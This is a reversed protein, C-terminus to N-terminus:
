FGFSFSDMEVEVWFAVCGTEVVVGWSVVNEKEVFACATVWVFVTSEELEFVISGKEVEWSFFKKVVQEAIKLVYLIVTAEEMLVCLIENVEVLAYLIEWLYFVIEM